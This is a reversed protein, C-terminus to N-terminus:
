LGSKAIAREPLVVDSHSGNLVCVIESGCVIECM